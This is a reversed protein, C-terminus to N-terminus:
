QTKRDPVVQDMLLINLLEKTFYDADEAALHSWEPVNLGQLEVYDEYHYARAGSQNVLEDWYEKRPYNELEKQKVEGDSPCLLLILNGGRAMFQKADEIFYKMTGEKDDKKQKPSFSLWVRRISNAFATDQVVRDKMRVNRDISTDMFKYFPLDRPRETRQGLYIRNLFSKLHIDDDWDEEGKSLFVFSKQLPISLQHNLRQAYTRNHYCDVKSQMRKWPRAQPVTTSFFLGSTVGVIITGSFNTNEVLDRFAPLPSSGPAALQIPKYGAVKEWVPLQIDFLIRSSGILIVDNSDAKEVKARQEAWLYKDDELDAIYGQSRWYIEWFALGALSFFCAIYFAKKLEM